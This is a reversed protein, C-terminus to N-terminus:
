NGPSQTIWILILKHCNSPLVKWLLTQAVPYATDETIVWSKMYCYSRRMRVVATTLIFECKKERQLVTMSASCNTRKGEYWPVQVRVWAATQLKLGSSSNPCSWCLDKLAIGQGPLMQVCVCFARSPQFARSFLETEKGVMGVKVAFQCKASLNDHKCLGRVGATICSVITICLFSTQLPLLVQGKRTRWMPQMSLWILEIAVGTWACSHSKVKVQRCGWVCLVEESDWSQIKPM